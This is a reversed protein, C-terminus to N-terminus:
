ATSLPNSSWPAAAVGYLPRDCNSSFMSPKSSTLHLHDLFKTLAKDPM